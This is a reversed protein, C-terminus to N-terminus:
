SKSGDPAEDPLEALYNMLDNIPNEILEGDVKVAPTGNVGDKSMQDTANILWQEFPQDDLYPQIEEASVGVKEALEVLEEDDAGLPNIASDLFAKFADPGALDYVAAAANGARTSYDNNEDSDLFSVLRYEIGLEGKEVLATLAPSTYTTFMACASCSLDEYVVIQKEADAEGVHLAYGEAGEPAQQEMKYTSDLRSMGFYIVGVSLALVAVVAGIILKRDVAIM